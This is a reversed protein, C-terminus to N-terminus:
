KEEPKVYGAPLKDGVFDWAGVTMDVVDDTTAEEAPVGFRRTKYVQSDHFQIQCGQMAKMTPDIAKGAVFNAVEGTTPVRKQRGGELVPKCDTDVVFATRTLMTPYFEVIRGMNTPCNIYQPRKGESGITTNEYVVFDKGSPITLIEGEKVSERTAARFANTFGGVQKMGSNASDAMMKEQLTM